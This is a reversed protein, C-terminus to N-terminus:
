SYRLGQFNPYRSRPASLYNTILPCSPKEHSFHKTRTQLNTFVKFLLLLAGDIAPANVGRQDAAPPSRPGANMGPRRRSRLGFRALGLAVMGAADRRARSWGRIERISEAEDVTGVRHIRQAEATM